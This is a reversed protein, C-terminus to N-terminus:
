REARGLEFDVVFDGGALGDHDGDIARGGRDTVSLAGSGAVKLRYSDPIWSGHPVSVALVTPELVRVEFTLGDIGVENGEAFSGDLGSRELSITSSGLVTTDLEADASVIMERPAADLIEESTPTVATLTAPSAGPGSAVTRPAGAAVWQRIVDITAQPLPTGNLPMRGGIAARGEIKQVLYSANPDGPQIRRLGPVEVSPVNVIMAYSVDATLRMGVPATAGAHCQTCIPTFVNQQISEFTPALPIPGADVPRGNADLGEGNGACGVLALTCVPVLALSGPRM